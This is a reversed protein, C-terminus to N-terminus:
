NGMLETGINFGLEIYILRTLGRWMVTNGPPADHARDLYGGLRAIKNLYHSLDGSGVANRKDVVLRDLLDAETQTLALTAPVDPLARNMMTMWFIRWSVICLISVLNALRDATRLKADEAKCGSKLIKHFTEIKWRQAYWHLKEIAESRSSVPLDTILKWDIPKRGQPAGRERAHLVTLTLAPYDKQKGIPPLVHVRRYRLELTAWAPKGKSDIVEVHHLGKVRVEEMETTITHQGDGALRDVCTRVLFHTKLEYATCFLEYIDSERDGVHVCREPDGFLRTSQRLNELWRFSEKQQIPVRTPNVKRKLANCGKYRRRSWFKIAALGLPVGRATVALSSHMLIGCMSKTRKRTVGNKVIAKYPEGIAKPNNRYYTFATTDQLVLVPGSCAAFRSATSQFHGALIAAENVRENSLFRYAAKTNAWDQCAFPIPAGVDNALQGLLVRLRKSLRADQFDCTATEEAVWPASDEVVDPLPAKSVPFPFQQTLKTM